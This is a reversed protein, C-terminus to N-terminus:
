LSVDADAAFRRGQLPSSSSYIAGNEQVIHNISSISKHLVISSSCNSGKGKKKCVAEKRAVGQSSHFSSPFAEVEEVQVIVM